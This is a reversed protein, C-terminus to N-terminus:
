TSGLLERELYAMDYNEYHEPDDPCVHRHLFTSGIGTEDCYDCTRDGSRNHAREMERYKDIILPTAWIKKAM